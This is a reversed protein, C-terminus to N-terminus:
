TWDTSYVLLSLAQIPNRHTRRTTGDTYNPTQGALRQARRHRIDCHATRASSTAHFTRWRHRRLRDVNEPGVSRHRSMAPQGVGTSQQLPLWHKCASVPPFQAPALAPNLTGSM